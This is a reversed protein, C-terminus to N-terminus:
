LEALRKKADDAAKTGPFKETIERFAAKAKEKDGSRALKEADKFATTAASDREDRDFLSKVDPDKALEAIREAAQRAIPTEPALQQTKLYERRAKVFDKQKEAAQGALFAPMGKQERALLRSAEGGAKTAKLRTEEKKMEGATSTGEFREKSATLARLASLVDGSEATSRAADLEKKARAELEAMVAEPEKAFPSGKVQDSAERVSKLVTPFDEKELAERAAKVLRRANSFELATLGRGGLKQQAKLVLDNYLSPAAVDVIRAVAVGTPLAAVIQPTKVEDECLAERAKGELSRHAACPIAGFKACVALVQGNVEQKKKQHDSINVVIPVTRETIKVFEPDVFLGTACRENAEEGDQVFGVLLPVNRATAEKLAADWTGGWWAVQNGARAQGFATALGCCLFILAFTPKM